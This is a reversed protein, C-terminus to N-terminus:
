NIDKKSGSLTLKSTLIHDIDGTNHNRLLEDPTINFADALKEINDLSVNREAREISSVYSRDLGSIQALQEQSWNKIFRLLRLKQALLTRARKEM